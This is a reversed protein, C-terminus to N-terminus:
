GEGPLATFKYDTLSFKWLDQKREAEDKGGFIYIAENDTAM